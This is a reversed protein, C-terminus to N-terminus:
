GHAAGSACSICLAAEPMAALRAPAIAAGCATCDGFTGAAIRDLAAQVEAIEQAILREQGILSEDAEREVAADESDQSQPTTLDAGIHGARARLENLRVELVRRADDVGM